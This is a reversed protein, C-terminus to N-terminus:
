QSTIAKMFLHYLANQSVCYMSAASDIHFENLQTNEFQTELNVGTEQTPQSITFTNHM